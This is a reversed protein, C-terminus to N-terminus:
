IEVFEFGWYGGIGEFVDYIFVMEVVSAVGKVPFFGIFLESKGENEGISEDSFQGNAVEPGPTEKHIRKHCFEKVVDCSNHGKGTTKSNM